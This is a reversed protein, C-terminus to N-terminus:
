EKDKGGSPKNRMWTVSGDNWLELFFDAFEVVQIIEKERGLVPFPRQTVEDFITKYGKTKM